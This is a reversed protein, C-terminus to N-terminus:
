AVTGLHWYQMPMYEFSGGDDLLVQAAFNIMSNKASRLSQPTESYKTAM